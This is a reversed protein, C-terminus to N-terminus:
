KLFRNIIILGVVGMGLLQWAAFPGIKKKTLITTAQQIPNPDPLTLVSETCGKQWWTPKQKITLGKVTSSDVVVPVGNVLQVLYTHGRNGCWRQMVHWRGPTLTPAPESIGTDNSTQITGGLRNQISVLNRFSGLDASGGVLNIDNWLGLDKRSWSKWDGVDIPVEGLQDLVWVAVLSSCPLKTAEGVLKVQESIM